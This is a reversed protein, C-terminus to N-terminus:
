PYGVLEPLGAARRREIIYNIYKQAHERGTENVHITHVWADNANKYGGWHTSGEVEHSIAIDTLQTFQAWMRPTDPLIVKGQADRRADIGSDSLSALGTCGSLLIALAFLFKM